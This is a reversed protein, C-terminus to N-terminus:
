RANDGDEPLHEMSANPRGRKNPKTRNQRKDHEDRGAFAVLTRTFPPAYRPPVASPRVTFAPMKEAKEAAGSPGLVIPRRVIPMGVLMEKLGIATDPGSLASTLMPLLNVSMRLPPIVNVPVKVM